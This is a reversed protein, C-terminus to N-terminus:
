QWSLPTGPPLVVKVRRPLVDVDFASRFMPEGNVIVRLFRSKSLSM